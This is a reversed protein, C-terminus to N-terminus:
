SSWLEGEWISLLRYPRSGMRIPAPNLNGSALTASRRHVNPPTLLSVPFAGCTGRHPCPRWILYVYNAKTVPSLADMVM